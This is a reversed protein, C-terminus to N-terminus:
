WPFQEQLAELAQQVREDQEAQLSLTLSLPDVTPRNKQLNPSYTWVQWQVGGPYSEPLVELGASQAARWQDAGVAFIPTPPEALMSEAALASLGALPAEPLYARASASTVVTKKVPSRLFPRAHQWAEAPRHITQVIRTKGVTRTTVLGVAVLERIARSTTMATYGLDAVTDAPRWESQWHRGLLAAIFLAQTAPSLTAAVAAPQRFYERFDIGLDPLYLQNGPVVFPIKQEVLRKREYSELTRTVFVVPRGVLASLKDVQARVASLKTARGEREAALLIERGFLVLEYLDFAETLVYPLGSVNSWRAVHPRAGLTDLLYARAAEVLPSPNNRTLM